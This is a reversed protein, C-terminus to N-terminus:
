TATLLAHLMRRLVVAASDPELGQQSRLADWSSWSAAAGLAARLLPQEGAPRAGIERAFIRELDLRKAARFAALREHAQESFPEQLLAARRVPAITEYIRTRQAVVADLRDDLSGSQDIHDFLPAIREAQLEGIAAFLADRDAYHQFVTRPAVGARLAIEEVTPQVNGEDLLALLADAIAARTRASRAARGDMHTVSGPDVAM